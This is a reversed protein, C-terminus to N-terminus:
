VRRALSLTASLASRQREDRPAELDDEAGVEEVLRPAKGRDERRELDRERGAPLGEDAVGLPRRGRGERVERRLAPERDLPRGERGSLADEVPERPARTVM